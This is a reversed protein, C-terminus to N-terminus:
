AKEPHEIAQDLKTPTEPKPKIKKKTTKVPVHEGTESTRDSSPINVTRCRCPSTSPHGGALCQLM